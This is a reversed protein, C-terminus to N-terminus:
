PRAWGRCGICRLEDPPQYDQLILETGADRATKLAYRVTALNQNLSLLGERPNYLFNFRAQGFLILAMVLAYPFQILRRTSNPMLSKMFQRGRTSGYDREASLVAAQIIVANGILPWVYHDFVRGTASAIAPPLFFAAAIVLPPLVRRQLAGLFLTWAAAVLTIGPLFHTMFAPPREGLLMPCNNRWCGEGALATNVVTLDPTQLPMWDGLTRMNETSYTTAAIQLNGALWPALLLMAIAGSAGVQVIFARREAAHNWWAWSWFLLSVPLLLAHSPHCLIALALTPLHLMRPIRRSQYYGQLGTYLFLMVFPAALNPNWIFRSALVATPHAAYLASAFLGANRGFYLRCFKCALSISFLNWLATFIRAIRPDGSVAFPMAYLYSPLPPDRLTTRFSFSMPGVLPRSGEVVQLAGMSTAAQDQFVPDDGLRRVRFVLGLMLICALVLCESLGARSRNSKM